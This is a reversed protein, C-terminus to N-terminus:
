EFMIAFAHPDIGPVPMFTGLRYVILAGLVFLLRSKLETFRGGALMAAAQQRNSEV